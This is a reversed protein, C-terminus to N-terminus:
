SSFGGATALWVLLLAFLCFLMGMIRFYTPMWPRMVLDAFPLDQVWKPKKRHYWRCFEVVEVPRAVCGIGISGVIVAAIIPGPTMPLEGNFCRCLILSTKTAINKSRLRASM